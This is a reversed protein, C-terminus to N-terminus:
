HLFLSHSGPVPSKLRLIFDISLLNVKKKVDITMKADENVDIPTLIRRLNTCSKVMVIYPVIAEQFTNSSKEGDVKERRLQEIM